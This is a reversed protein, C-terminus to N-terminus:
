DTTAVGPYAVSNLHDNLAEAPKKWGLAKRPRSNFALVVAQLEQERLRSLDTHAAWPSSSVRNHTHRCWSPVSPHQRLYGRRSRRPFTYSPRSCGCKTLGLRGCQRRTTWLISAAGRAKGPLSRPRTRDSRARLSPMITPIVWAASPPRPEWMLSGRLTGYRLM